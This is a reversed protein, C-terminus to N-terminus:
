LILSSIGWEGSVAHAAGLVRSTEFLRHAATEHDTVSSASSRFGIPSVGNIVVTQLAEALFWLHGLGLFHAPFLHILLNELAFMYSRLVHKGIGTESAEFNKGIWFVHFAHDIIQGLLITSFLPEALRGTRGLVPIVHAVLDLGGFAPDRVSMGAEIVGANEFITVQARDLVRVLQVKADFLGAARVFTTRTLTVIREGFLHPFPSRVMSTESDDVLLRLAMATVCGISAGVSVIVIASWSAGREFQSPFLAAGSTQAFYGSLHRLLRIPAPVPGNSM